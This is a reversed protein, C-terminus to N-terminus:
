KLIDSAKNYVGEPSCKPITGTSAIYTPKGTIAMLSEAPGVSDTLFLSVPNRQSDSSTDKASAIIFNICSVFNKFM